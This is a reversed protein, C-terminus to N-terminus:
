DPLAAPDVGRRLLKKIKASVLQLSFKLARSFEKKLHGKKQRGRRRGAQRNNGTGRAGIQGTEQVQFKAEDRGRVGQRGWSFRFGCM